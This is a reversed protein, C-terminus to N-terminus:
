KRIIIPITANRVTMIRAAFENFSEERLVVANAKEDETSDLM